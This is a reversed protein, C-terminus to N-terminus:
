AANWSQMLYFDNQVGMSQQPTNVSLNYNNVNSYTNNSNYTSMQGTTPVASVMQNGLTAGLALTPGTMGRAAGIAGATVSALANAPAAANAFIGVAVGQSLPGGIEEMAVKSPSAIGGAAKAAQIAQTVLSIAAAIVSGLMSRIGSEVGSGVGQGVSFGQSKFNANGVAQKTEDMSKQAAPSVTTFGQTLALVSDTATKFGPPLNTAATSTQNLQSQLNAQQGQNLITAVTNEQYAATAEKNRNSAITWADAVQALQPDLASLQAKVQDAKASWEDSSAGGERMKDTYTQFEKWLAQVNGPMSAVMQNLTNMQSSTESMAASQQQLSNKLQDVASSARAVEGALATHGNMVSSLAPVLGFLAGQNSQIIGNQALLGDATEKVKDMFSALAPHTNGTIADGLKGAGDTVANFAGVLDGKMLASIAQGGTEVTTFFVRFPMLALNIAAPLAQGVVDAVFGIVHGLVELAPGADKAGRALVDAISKGAEMVGSVLSSLGPKMANFANNLADLVSKVAQGANDFINGVDGMHSSVQDAFFTVVNSALNLGSQFADSVSKVGETIQSMNTRIGSTLSTFVQELTQAVTTIAKFATQVLGSQLAVEGLSSVFDLSTRVIAGLEKGLNGALAPLQSLLQKLALGSRNGENFANGAARMPEELGSSIGKGFSEVTVVLSHLVDGAVRAAGSFDKGLVHGANTISDQFAAIGGNIGGNLTGEFVKLATNLPSFAAVVDYIKGAVLGLRDFFATIGTANEPVAIGELGAKFGKFALEADQVSQRVAVGLRAFATVPKEIKGTVGDLFIVFEAHALHAAPIVDNKIFLGLNGFARLIPDIQKSDKWDGRMAGAFTALADTATQTARTLPGQMKDAVPGLENVLGTLAKVALTAAPALARGLRIQVAEISGKLNEFQIGLSGQMTNTLDEFKKNAGNVAEQMQDFEAPAANMLTLFASSAEKGAIMNAIQLKQADNLSSFKGRLEGIVQSMPKIHGQADALSFGLSDLAAAAEKPPDALRLIISRLSTGAQSGKIMHNGLVGVAVSVDEFSFKASAAAPGVYKLTQGFDTIDIASANATSALVAAFHEADKAEMGFGRLAAGLIEASKSVELNGAVALKSTAGGMGELIENASFGAKSLEVFADAVQKTSLPLDAGLQIAADELKHFVTDDVDSATAKITYLAQNFDAFAGVSSKGFSTALHLGAEGAKLALEGLKGIAGGVVSGLKGIGDIVVGAAKGGLDVLGGAAKLASGALTSIVGSAGSIPASMSSFHSSAQSASKGLNEVASANKGMSAFAENFGSFSASNAKGIVEDIAKSFSRLDGQADALGTVKFAVQVTEDAM